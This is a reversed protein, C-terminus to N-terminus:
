FDFGSNVIEKSSVCSIKSFNASDLTISTDRCISITSEVRSDIVNGTSLRIVWM